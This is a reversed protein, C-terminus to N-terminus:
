VGCVTEAIGTKKSRAFDGSPIALIRGEIKGVVIHLKTGVEIGACAGVEGERPGFGVQKALSDGEGNSGHWTLRRARDGSDLV